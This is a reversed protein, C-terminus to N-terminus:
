ERPLVTNFYFNGTIELYPEPFGPPLPEFDAASRIASTAVYQLNPVGRHDLLTLLILRGDSAIRFRVSTAWAATGYFFAPPPFIQAEIEAKLRTLYPGYEWATTNLSFTSGARARTLREDVEPAPLRAGSGLASPLGPELGIPRNRVVLRQDGVAPEHVPEPSRDTAAADGSPGASRLRSAATQAPEGPTRPIAPVPSHGASYPAGEPRDDPAEPQSARSDRTSVFPTPELPAEEPAPGLDVFTIREPPALPEPQRGPTREAVGLVWLPAILTAHVLLSILFAPGSERDYPMPGNFIAPV